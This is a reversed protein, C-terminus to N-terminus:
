GMRDRFVELKYAKTSTLGPVWALTPKRDEELKARDENKKIYDSRFKRGEVKRYWASLAQNTTCGIENAIKGFSLGKARLEALAAIREETWFGTNYKSTYQNPM